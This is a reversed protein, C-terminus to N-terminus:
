KGREKTYRDFFSKDPLYPENIPMPEIMMISELYENHKPENVVLKNLISLFAEKGKETLTLRQESDILLIGEKEYYSVFDIAETPEIGYRSYLTYALLGKNSQYLDKFISRYKIKIDM